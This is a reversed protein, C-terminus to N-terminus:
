SSKRMMSDEKGRPRGRGQRNRRRWTPVTVLSNFVARHRALLRYVDCHFAPVRGRNCAVSVPCVFCMSRASCRACPGRPGRRNAPAALFPLRHARTERRILEAPLDPDNVHLGGLAALVDRLVTPKAGFTSPVFFDCPALTGDVDVVLLGHSGCACAPTGEATPGETAGQFPRFPVAGSRRFEDISLEVVNALQGDLGRALDSNWGADDPVVPVVEVDKLGVSLFYRFSESLFPVNRSTLTAKIGLRRGFHEPHDRKFRILLRDLIEFSGPSRDDQAPAVGDFSLTIFVNRSVLLRTMEEDLRTGNTVIHVEPNMHPPAWERVRDLAHRVLRAALLPEGGYLTLRPHDLRSSVLQRIAADLVEPGMTRPRRRQQDCYACRLDCRTTLMLDVTRVGPDLLESLSAGSHAPM